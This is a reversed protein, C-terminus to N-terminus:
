TFFSCNFRVRVVVLRLVMDVGYLYRSSKLGSLSVLLIWPALSFKWYVMPVLFPCPARVTLENACGCFSPM